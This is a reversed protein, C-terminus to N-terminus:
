LARELHTVMCEPEAVTLVMGEEIASFFVLEGDANVRQIARVHHTDGLRVTVPHAAFTFEDLQDPDKGIIRAYERGAPEANIEKVIRWDPDAATVVMRQDTPQLNDLSFVRVDHDTQVLTLIAADSYVQGNMAVLTSRFATGDGASGGFLPMRSLAPALASVLVDERLSLGDVMLFAFGSPMDSHAEALAVRAMLVDDALDNSDLASLPHILVSKSAFHSSPLAVVIIRDDVYGDAGIEGATTCGAVTADPRAASLGEMLPALDVRPSAFVFLQCYAREGLQRTITKTPAPDNAVLELTLFAAGDSAKTTEVLASSVTDDRLHNM